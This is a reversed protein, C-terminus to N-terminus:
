RQHCGACGGDHGHGRDDARDSRGAHDRGRRRSGGYGHGRRVHDCGHERARDHEHRHCSACGRGRHRADHGRGRDRGDSAHLRCHRQVRS